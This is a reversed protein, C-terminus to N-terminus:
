RFNGFNRTCCGGVCVWAHTSLIHLCVFSNVLCFLLLYAYYNRVNFRAISTKALHGSVSVKVCYGIARGSNGNGLLWCRILLACFVYCKCCMVLESRDSCRGGCMTAHLSHQTTPCDSGLAQRM